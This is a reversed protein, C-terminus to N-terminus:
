FLFSYSLRLSFNERFGDRSYPGYRYVFELGPSTIGPGLLNLVALGSEIFGKELTEFGANHHMSRDGFTGIGVNTILVIEPSFGAQGFLLEEFSHNWFLAIYRDSVFEDPGMTAFSGPASLGFRSYAGPATFRKSWPAEGRFYGGRLSIRQHGLMRIRYNAKLNAELRLYDYEGEFIGNIGKAINIMVVPSTGAIRFTREPTYIYSDGFTLRMKLGTEFFRSGSPTDPHPLPAEGYFYSGSHTHDESAAYARLTLYNRLTLMQLWVAHSRAMDLTELYYSRLNADSFVGSSSLFEAGGRESTDYVYDYGLRLDNYGSLLFNVGGGYKFERDAFGYGFLGRFQLRRSLRDNTTFSVGPRFGEHRNYRLFSSVDLDFPGRRRMGSMLAEITGIRRDLDIVGSISDLYHYTSLERSDLSDRRFDKWFGNDLTVTGPSFEMQYPSFDRRRLNLGTEIDQIYTRGNGTIKFGHIEPLNFIEFDTNLQTPFWRDGDVIEYNQQIRVNSDEGGRAPEAIVSQLAWGNTNIYMVGKLGKFNRGLSPRYSIVFVSDNNATYTTDELNYFYRLTSGPALPSLYSDGLVNIYDDYFSFSQIQSIFLAFAPHNTGSIRSALVTENNLGPYRYKRNTVMEMM